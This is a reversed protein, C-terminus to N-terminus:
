LLLCAAVRKVLAMRPCEKNSKFKEVKEGDAKYKEEKNKPNKKKNKTMFNIEKEREKACPTTPM